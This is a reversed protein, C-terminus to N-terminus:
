PVNIVDVFQQYEPSIRGLEDSWRLKVCVLDGVTLVLDAPVSGNPPPSGTDGELSGKFKWPGNFFAIGPSLIESMSLSIWTQDIANNFGEIDVYTLRIANPDASAADSVQLGIGTTFIAPAEGLTTPADNLQTGGANARFVRTRNFANIGSLRYSQGLSGPLQFSKGYAIWALRQASTLVQSWDSSADGFFGRVLNQRNTQPNVPISRARIYAGHANHSFVNGALKGSMQGHIPVFKAM